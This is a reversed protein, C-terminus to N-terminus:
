HTRKRIWKRCDGNGPQIARTRWSRPYGRNAVVRELHIAELHRCCPRTSVIKTARLPSKAHSTLSIPMQRASAYYRGAPQGPEPCAGREGGAMMAFRVM